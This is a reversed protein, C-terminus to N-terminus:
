PAHWYLWVTDVELAAAAAPAEEFDTDELGPCGGRVHSDIDDLTEALTDRIVQRCTDLDFDGMVDGFRDQLHCRREAEHVSQVAKDLKATCIDIEVRPAARVAVSIPGGGPYAYDQGVEYDAATAVGDELVEADFQPDVDLEACGGRVSRDLNYMKRALVGRVKQRCADIDFGDTTGFYDQMSCAHELSRVSQLSKDIGATCADITVSPAAKITIMRIDGRATATVSLMAVLAVVFCFSKLAFRRM